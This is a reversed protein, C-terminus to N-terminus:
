IPTRTVYIHCNLEVQNSASNKCVIASVLRYQPIIHRFESVYPTDYVSCGVDALLVILPKKKKQNKRFLVCSVIVITSPPNKMDVELDRYRHIARFTLEGAIRSM